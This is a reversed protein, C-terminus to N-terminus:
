EAKQFESPMCWISLFNEDYFDIVLDDESCDGEVLIKEGPKLDVRDGIPELMLGLEVASKNEIKFRRM